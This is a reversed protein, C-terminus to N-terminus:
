RFQGWGNKGRKGAKEKLARSLASAGDQNDPRFEAVSPFPSFPPSFNIFAPIRCAQINITKGKLFNKYHTFAGELILMSVSNHFFRRFSFHFPVTM